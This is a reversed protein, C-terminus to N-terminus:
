WKLATKKTTPRWRSTHFPKVNAERRTALSDVHLIVDLRETFRISVKGVDISPTQFQIYTGQPVAPRPHLGSILQATLVTGVL